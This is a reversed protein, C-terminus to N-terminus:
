CPPGSAPPSPWSVRVHQLGSKSVQQLASIRATLESLGHIHADPLAAESETYGSPPRHGHHGIQVAYLGASHAGFVDHLPSDGVFVAEGAAVGLRSLAHAFIRPDPKALELEDSFVLCELLGAFGQWALLERLYPASTVGANSILGTRLGASRLAQLAALADPAPQPALAPELGCIAAELDDAASATLTGPFEPGLQALFLPVRGAASVDRGQDHLGTLALGTADLALAVAGEDLHLGQEALVRCVNANRWAQRPRGREPSDLVLTGWLDFLVAKIAM